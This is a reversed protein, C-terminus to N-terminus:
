SLFIASMSNSSKPSWRSSQGGSSSRSSWSVVNSSPQLSSPTKSMSSSLGPPSIGFGFFSAPTILLAYVSPLFFRRLSSFMLATVVVRGQQFSQAPLLVGRSLDDVHVNRPLAHLGDDQQERFAVRTVAFVKGKRTQRLNVDDHLSVGVVDVAFAECLAVHIVLCPPEETIAFTRM